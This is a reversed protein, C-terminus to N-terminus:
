HGYDLKLWAHDDYFDMKEDMAASFLLEFCNQFIEHNSFQMLSNELAFTQILKRRFFLCNQVNKIQNEIQKM